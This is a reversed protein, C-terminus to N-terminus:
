WFVGDPGNGYLVAGFSFLDTRADLREGRVQEPSMYGATGMAAGTLSVLPDRAAGIVKWSAQRKGTAIEHPRREWEDEIAESHFLKALGFDLIIAQGQTSVFINAPKIDRHIIGHSHTAELGSAIQIALDLLKAVRLPARGRDPTSIVERLTQGTLLQM